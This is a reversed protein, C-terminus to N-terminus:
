AESPGFAEVLQPTLVATSRAPSRASARGRALDRRDRRRPCRAPRRRRGLAGGRRPATPSSSSCASRRDAAVTGAIGLAALQATGLHGVIAADALLFLPESVLAAFAPVALRPIERDQARRGRRVDPDATM